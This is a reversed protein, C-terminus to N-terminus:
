VSIEEPSWSKNDFCKNSPAAVVPGSVYTVAAETLVDLELKETVNKVYIKNNTDGLKKIFKNILPSAEEPSVKVSGMKFGYALPRIGQLNVPAPSLLSNEIMCFKVSKALTTMHTLVASSPPDKKLGTFELILLDRVAPHMRKIILVFLEALKEEFLLRTDIPLIIFGSGKQRVFLLGQIYTAILNIFDRRFKESTSGPKGLGSLSSISGIIRGKQPTCVPMYKQVRQGLIFVSNPLPKNPPTSYIDQTVREAWFNIEELTPNEHLGERMIKSLGESAHGTKKQDEKASRTKRASGDDQLTNKLHEKLATKLVDAKVKAANEPLQNYYIEIVPSNDLTYFGDEEQFHNDLVKGTVNVILKPPKNTGQFYDPFVTKLDFKHGCGGPTSQSKKQFAAHSYKFKEM